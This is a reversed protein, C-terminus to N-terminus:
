VVKLSVDGGTQQNHTRVTQLANVKLDDQGVFGADLVLILAPDRGAMQEVAEVTLTDALCVLLSGGAVSYGDLGGFTTQEIDATLPYGAKVVLEMLVSVDSTDSRRHDTALQLQEALADPEVVSSDWVSFNSPVLRFARFGADLDAAGEEARAATSARRVRDRVVAALNAHDASDIPEPIQVLLYRRSRGDALNARMVAEALTGSGAFFDLVLDDGSTALELIREMLKVPKPTDFPPEGDFLEKLELSAEKNSGCEEHPWWTSATLGDKVQSLYKKLMPRGSEDAGFWIRGEAVWEEYQAQNCRWYRRPPPTVKRGSPTTIEFTGSSYYKGASLNEAKWPGRPDGDPNTFKALQEPTRELRGIELADADRAYIVVYDHTQSLHKATMNATYAKQWVATAVFNEEGFVENMVARLNHVEHDDITVFIAGDDRLLNRALYLRPYIMSLWKSHYRGDTEANASLKFGEADLQGSYRLYDALGETWSDPYIFEQGTNYPPDIYIVKVEGHYARQLLKLVELNEGEVIVNDTADFDVSEDREPVLTGVSPEQIIRMCAAKGPWTLGFREPGPDVWEGLARALAEVDVGSETFVDPFASRVAAIRDDLPAASTLDLRELETM